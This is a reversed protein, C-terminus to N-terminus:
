SKWHFNLACVAGCSAWHYGLEKVAVEGSEVGVPPSLQRVRETFIQM